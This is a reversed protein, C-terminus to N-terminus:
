PSRQGLPCIVATTCTERVDADCFGGRAAAVPTRSAGLCSVLPPIIFYKRMPAEFASQGDLMIALAVFDLCGPEAHGIM